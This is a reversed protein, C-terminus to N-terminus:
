ANKEMWTPNRAVSPKDARDDNLSGNLESDLLIACSAMIHGLHHVHSDHAFDEGNYWDAIHRMMADYFVSSTSGTNRWNFRGYKEAGNSMAAGLAFLSVPPVDSLKPKGAAAITKLNKDPLEDPGGFMCDDTSKTTVLPHSPKGKWFMKDMQKDYFDGSDYTDSMFKEKTWRIEDDVRDKVFQTLKTNREPMNGQSDMYFEKIRSM